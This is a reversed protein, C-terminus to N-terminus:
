NGTTLYTALTQNNPVALEHFTELRSAVKLSKRRNTVESSLNKLQLAHMRLLIERLKSYMSILIRNTKRCADSSFRKKESWRCETGSWFSNYYLLFSKSKSDFRDTNSFLNNLKYNSPRPNSKWEDFPFFNIWDKKPVKTWDKAGAM